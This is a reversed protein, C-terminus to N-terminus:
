IKVTEFQKAIYITAEEATFKIVTYEPDDKGGNSFHNALWDQWLADKEKKDELVAINGILTVSDGGKYFTVGAKPNKHYYRVKNSSTGTAFYLTKIGDNKIRGLICIRPYGSTTVASVSCTACEKLLKEASEILDNSM